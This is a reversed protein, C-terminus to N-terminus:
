HELDAGHVTGHAAMLYVLLDEEEDYALRAHEAMHPLIGRWYEPELEGPKIRKHCRECHELYLERGQRLRGSEVGMAMAMEPTVQPIRETVPQEDCGALVVCGWLCLIRRMGPDQM